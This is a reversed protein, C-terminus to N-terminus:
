VLLVERNNIDGTRLDILLSWLVSLMRQGFCSQSNGTMLCRKGILIQKTVLSNILIMKESMDGLLLLKAITQLMVPIDDVNNFGLWVINASKVKPTSAVDKNPHIGV